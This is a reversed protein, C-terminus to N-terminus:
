FSQGGLGRTVAMDSQSWFRKGGFVFPARSLSRGKATWIDM